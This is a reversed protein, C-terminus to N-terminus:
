SYGRAEIEGIVLVLVCRADEGLRSYRVLQAMRGMANHYSCKVMGVGVRSPQPALIVSILAPVSSPMSVMFVTRARISAARYVLM